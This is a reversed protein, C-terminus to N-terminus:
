KEGEPVDTPENAPPLMERRYECVCNPDGAFDDMTACGALTTLLIAATLIRRM